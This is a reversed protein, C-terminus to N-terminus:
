IFPLFQASHPPLASSALGRLGKNLSGYHGIQSAGRNIFDNLIEFKEILPFVAVAVENLEPAPKLRQIGRGIAVAVLHPAACALNPKLCPNYVAAGAARNEIKLAVAVGMDHAPQDRKQKGNKGALWRRPDECGVGM